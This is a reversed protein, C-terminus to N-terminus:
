PVVRFLALSQLERAEDVTVDFAANGVWLCPEMDKDKADLRVRELQASAFCLVRPSHTAAGTVAYMTVQVDGGIVAVRLERRLSPSPALVIRMSEPKVASTRVRDGCPISGSM